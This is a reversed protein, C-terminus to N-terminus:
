SDSIPFQIVDSGEGGEVGDNRFKSEFADNWMWDEEKQIKLFSQAFTEANEKFSPNDEDPLEFGSAKLFDKYHAMAVDLMDTDFTMVVESDHSFEAEKILRFNPM